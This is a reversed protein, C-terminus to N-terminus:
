AHVESDLIISRLISLRQPDVLRGKLIKSTTAIDIKARRALTTLSINRLVMEAKLQRLPLPTPPLSRRLKRRSPM